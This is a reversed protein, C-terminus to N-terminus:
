KHEVPEGATDFWQHGKHGDAGGGAVLQLRASWVLRDSYCDPKGDVVALYVNKSILKRRTFSPILSFPLSSFTLSPRFYNLFRSFYLWPFLFFFFLHLSIVPHHVVIQMHIFSIEM